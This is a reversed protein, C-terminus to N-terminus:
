FDAFNVKGLALFSWLSSTNSFDFNIGFGKQAAAVGAAGRVTTGV